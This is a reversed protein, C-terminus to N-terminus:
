VMRRLLGVALSLVGMVVLAVIIAAPPIPSSTTGPRDPLQEVPNVPPPATFTPATNVDGGSQEPAQTFVGTPVSFAAATATEAAGPTQLIITATQGIAEQTPDITPLQPADVIPVTSLDGTITVLQEFVWAEDAGEFAVQYWPFEVSRGLVPVPNGATIEGVIDFDLGPGARLNAEGIAEALVPTRTPTRSATATPGGLATPTSTPLQINGGGPTPQQNPEDANAISAVTGSILVVGLVCILMVIIPGRRRASIM